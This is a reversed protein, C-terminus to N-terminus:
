ILSERDATKKSLVAADDPRYITLTVPVINLNDISKGPGELLFAMKLRNSLEQENTKRWANILSKTDTGAAPMMVGLIGYTCCSKLSQSMQRLHLKETNRLM